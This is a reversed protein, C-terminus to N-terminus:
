SPLVLKKFFSFVSSAAPARIHEVLGVSILSDICTKVDSDPLTPLHFVKQLSEAIARTNRSGDCAELVFAATVNLFILRASTEDYVAYGEDPVEVVEVGECKRYTQNGLHIM